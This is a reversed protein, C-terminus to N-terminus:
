KSIGTVTIVFCIMETCVKIESGTAIAYTGNLYFAGDKEIGLCKIVGIVDIYTDKPCSVKVPAGDPGDVYVEAPLITCNGDITGLLANGSYLYVESGSQFYKGSTYRIDSVEFSMEYEEVNKEVGIWESIQSRFVVGLICLLVLVVIFVDIANFRRESRKENQQTNSM